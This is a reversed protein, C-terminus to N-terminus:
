KGMDMNMKMNMGSPMATTPVMIHAYKTGKWMVWPGGNHWDTPLTNLLTSDSTIIMIHPPSVVWQDDATEKEAFPDTNSAGKDGNLMYGIGVGKVQPDKKHAYADLFSMWEKDVCMMEPHAMCTWGNTGPRLEKMNMKEDMDVIAAHATIDTPGSSLAQKVVDDNSTMPAQGSITSAPAADSKATNATESKTM